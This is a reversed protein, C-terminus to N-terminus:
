RPPAASADPSAARVDRWAVDVVPSQETAAGTASAADARPTPTDARQPWRAGVQRTMERYRRWLLTVAAPKGTFVSAVLSVVLMVALWVLLSLAFVAGMAALTLWVLAGMVRAVLGDAGASV